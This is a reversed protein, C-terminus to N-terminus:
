ATVERREAPQAFGSVTLLWAAADTRTRFVRVPEDRSLTGPRSRAVWTGLFDNRVYGVRLNNGDGTAVSVAQVGILDLIPEYRVRIM